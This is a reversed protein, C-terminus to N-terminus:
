ASTAMGTFVERAWAAWEDKISIDAYNEYDRAIFGGNHHFADMMRKAEAQIFKKDAKPLVNQIDAESYLTAKGRMVGSLDDYNYITPQDFQFVDVGIEILDDIISRITGCSHLFFKMGQEHLRRILRAYAGKWIERWSEPNIYLRDQLGWDDCIMVCDVGFRHLIETQCIAAETCANVMRKLNETEMITDALMNDIKRADRAAAQLSVISSLTFKDRSKEAWSQIKELNYNEERHFPSLYLEIYRDLNEWGDELFGRICEGGTKQNLRGFINGDQRRVEGSFGPVQELLEPYHGWETYADDATIKPAAALWFGSFDNQNPANFSYGIRPPNDFELVRLIIERSTM